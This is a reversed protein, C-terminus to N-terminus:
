QAAQFTVAGTVMDSKGRVTATISLVWRGAMMMPAM